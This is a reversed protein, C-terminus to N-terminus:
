SANIKESFEKAAFVNLFIWSLIGLTIFIGALPQQSTVHFLSMVFSALSASLVQLCGFLGGTIGAMHPFPHFAGAFANAFTLGAGVSFLCVPVMIALTNLFGLWGLSFMLVGAVIMFNNGVQMMTIIGKKIVLFNNLFTSVFISGAVVFALWGFQVANLGVINQLLFPAFSMYAILGSYAFSSCLTFGIFTKSTLLLKYNGLMVGINLAKENLNKNTEPLSRYVLILIFLTYCALFLFTMRWNFYHQIYGGITPALATVLAAGMGFLSGIQALRAGSLLDRTVTRGVSNCAGVGIGQVFRGLCLVAISPAILCILCGIINLIYGMFLPSRRGIKDSLPGYVLHSLSFAFMFISLTLQIMSPTTRFDKAISPFSPTYFDATIHGLTGSLILTIFLLATFKIESM